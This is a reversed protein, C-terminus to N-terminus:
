SGTCPLLSGPCSGCLHLMEGHRVLPQRASLSFGLFTGGDAPIALTLWHAYNHESAGFHEHYTNDQTVVYTYDIKLNELLHRAPRWVCLRDAEYHFLHLTHLEPPAILLQPPCAIAGLTSETVVNPFKWLLHLLCLGAFSGASFGKLHILQDLIITDPSGTYRGMRGGLLLAWILAMSDTWLVHPMRRHSPPVHASRFATLAETRRASAGPFVVSPMLERVLDDWHEASDLAFYHLVLFEHTAKSRGLAALHRTEVGGFAGSVQITEELPAMSPGYVKQGEKDSRICLDWPTGTNLDRGGLGTTEVRLIDPLHRQIEKDTKIVVTYPFATLQSTPNRHTSTWVIEGNADTAEIVVNDAGLQMVFAWDAQSTIVAVVKSEGHWKVARNWQERPFGPLLFGTISLFYIARLPEVSYEYTSIRIAAQNMGQPDPQNVQFLEELVLLHTSQYLQAADMADFNIQLYSPSDIGDPGLEVEVGTLWKVLACGPITTPDWRSWCTLILLTERESLPAPKVKLDITTGVVPRLDPAIWMPPKHETGLMAAAMPLWGDGAIARLAKDMGAKAGGYAHMIVPRQYGPIIGTAQFMKDGPLSFVPALGPMMLLSPLAGQEFAAQGM